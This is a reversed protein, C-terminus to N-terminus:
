PELPVLGTGAPVEHLGKAIELLETPPLTARLRFPRSAITARIENMRLGLRLRVKGVGEVDRESVAPADVPPLEPGGQELIVVDIGDGWVDVLSVNTAGAASPTAGLQPATVAYRGILRFRNPVGDLRVSAYPPNTAPDVGEVAGGGREPALEGSPDALDADQLKPDNEIQVALRRRLVKGSTVWVEELVLGDESICVDAYDRSGAEYPVPDGTALPEGFRHVRCPRDLVERWERVAAVDSRVLGDLAPDLRWDSAALEPSVDVTLAEMEGTPVALRGFRSIEVGSVDTGPPAGFRREMRSDFPRRVRLDETTTVVSGGAFDDVRYVVRYGDIPDIVLRSDREIVESGERADAPDPRNAADATENTGSAEGGTSGADDPDSGVNAFIVVAGLVVAAAALVSIM